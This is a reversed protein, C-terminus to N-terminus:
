DKTNKLAEKMEEFEDKTLEGIIYRMELVKAVDGDRLSKEMKLREYSRSGFYFTIIVGYVGYAFYRTYSTTVICEPHLDLFLTSIFALTLIIAIARRMEGKSLRLINAGKGKALASNFMLVYYFFAHAILLWLLNAYLIAVILVLLSLWFLVIRLGCFGTESTSTKASVEGEAKSFSNTNLYM